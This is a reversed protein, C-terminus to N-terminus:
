VAVGLLISKEFDEYSKAKELSIQAKLTDVRETGWKRKYLCTLLTGDLGVLAILVTWITPLEQPISM